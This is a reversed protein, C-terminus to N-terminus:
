NGVRSLGHVRTVLYLRAMGSKTAGCRLAIQGLRRYTAAELTVTLRKSRTLVEPVRVTATRLRASRHDHVRRAILARTLEDLSQKIYRAWAELESHTAAGIVVVLTRPDAVIGPVNPRIM